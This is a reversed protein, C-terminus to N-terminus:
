YLGMDLLLDFLVVIRLTHLLCRGKAASQRNSARRDELKRAESPSLMSEDIRRKRGLSLTSAMKSKPTTAATVVARPTM